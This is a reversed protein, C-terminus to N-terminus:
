CGSNAFFAIIAHFDTDPRLARTADQATEPDNNRVLHRTEWSRGGDWNQLAERAAGNSRYVQNDRHSRKGPRVGIVDLLGYPEQLEQVRRRVTERRRWEDPDSILAEAVEMATFGFGRPLEPLEAIDVPPPPPPPATAYQSIDLQSV